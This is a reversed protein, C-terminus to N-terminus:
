KKKTKALAKLEKQLRLSENMLVRHKEAAAVSRIQNARNLVVMGSIMGAAVNSNTSNLGAIKQGGIKGIAVAIPIDIVGRAIIGRYARKTVSREFAEQQDKNLDGMIDKWRRDPDGVKKRIKDLKQKRYHARMSEGSFVSNMEQTLQEKQVEELKQKTTLGDYRKRVGWKMGKIGHHALFDDADM